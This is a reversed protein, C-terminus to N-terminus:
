SGFFWLEESIAKISTAKDNWNVQFVAPHRERLPMEPDNRFVRRAGRYKDL